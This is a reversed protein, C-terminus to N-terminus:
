ESFLMLILFAGDGLLDAIHGVVLAQESAGSGRTWGLSSFVESEEALDQQTRWDGDELNADYFSKVDSWAADAPLSYLKLDAAVDEKGSSDRIADAMQDAFENQGREMPEAGPYVPIDSMSVPDTGCAVVLLVALVGVVLLSITKQRNM